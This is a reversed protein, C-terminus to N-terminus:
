TQDYEILFIPQDFEIPQENEVLVKRITGSKEAEIENMLKMAEVICLTQGKRVKKNESVFNDEDPGSASYFIGVFPSRVETFNHEPNRAPADSPTSNPKTQPLDNVVQPQSPFWPITPNQPPTKVLRISDTGEKVELEQLKHTEMIKLFNEIKEDTKM